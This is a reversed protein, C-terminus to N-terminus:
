PGNAEAEALASVSGDKYLICPYGLIDVSNEPFRLHCSRKCKFLAQGDQGIAWFCPGGCDPCENIERAESPFSSGEAGRATARDYENQADSGRM